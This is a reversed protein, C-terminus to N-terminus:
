GETKMAERRAQLRPSLRHYIVLLVLSILESGMCLLLFEQVSVAQMIAGGFLSGICGACSMCIADNVGHATTALEPPVLEQVISRMSAFFFSYSTGGFVAAVLMLWSSNAAFLLLEQMFASAIALLLGLKKDRKALFKGALMLGPAETLVMVFTNLSVDSATGGVKEYVIAIMIWITLIGASFFFLIAEVWAFGPIRFMRAADKVNFKKHPVGDATTKPNTLVVLTLFVAGLALLSVPMLWFGVRDIFLAYLLLAVAYLICGFGRVDSLSKNEGGFSRIIWTDMNTNLPLQLFGVATYTLLIMWWSRVFYLALFSGALLLYMLIVFKRNNQSRDTTTGWFFQGAFSAVRFAALMLGVQMPTIGQSRVYSVALALFGALSTWYLSDLARFRRRLQSQSFEKTKM